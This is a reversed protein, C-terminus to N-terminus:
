ILILDKKKRARSVCDKRLDTPCPAIDLLLNKIVPGFSWYSDSRIVESHGTFKISPGTIRVGKSSWIDM